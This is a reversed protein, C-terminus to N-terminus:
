GSARITAGDREVPEDTTGSSDHGARRGVLLEEYTRQLHAVQQALTFSTEVRGRAAEAFRDRCEPDGLMDGIMSALAAADGPPYLRGDVGDRVLSPIAGGDPGIVPTGVAMAEIVVMGFPEPEISTHVALDAASVITMADSRAGALEVHGALGERSIESRIFEGYADDAVAGVLLWRFRVGRAALRAAAGVALHQGKWPKLHGVTTILREDDALGLAHRVDARSATIRLADLDLGNPITVTRTNPGCAETLLRAREETLCVIRDIRSAARRFALPPRRWIGHQHTVLPVGLSEAVHLWRYDHWLHGNVHILDVNPPLFASLARARRRDIWWLRALSRVDRAARRMLPRSEPRPDGPRLARLAHPHFMYSAFVPQTAISEEVATWVGLDIADQVYAGDRAFLAHPTFRDRDLAGLINTLVRKSGGYTSDPSVDVYLVNAPTM